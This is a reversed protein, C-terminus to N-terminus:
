AWRRRATKTATSQILHPPRPIAEPLGNTLGVLSLDLDLEPWHFGQGHGILVWRSRKAASTKLLSPYRKLPISIEREDSLAVILRGRAFRVGTARPESKRVGNRKNGNGTPM